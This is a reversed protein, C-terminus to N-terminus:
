DTLKVHLNGVAYAEHVAVIVGISLLSAAEKETLDLKDGVNIKHGNRM